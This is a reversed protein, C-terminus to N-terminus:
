AGWPESSSVHFVTAEPEAALVDELLGIAKQVAPLGEQRTLTARDKFVETAIITNPDTLDRAIDFSIVGDLARSAAIVERFTAMAQESKEAKCKAKFRVVVMTESPAANATDFAQALAHTDEYSRFSTVKGDRLTWALTWESAFTRASPKARGSWMGTALVRAGNAFYERPEFATVDVNAYIADFFERVEDLGRRERAYPVSPPGANVWRVDPNVVDLIAPVDGRGFAAYLAQVTAINSPESM